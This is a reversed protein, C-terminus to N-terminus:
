HFGLLKQAASNEKLFIRVKTMDVLVATLRRPILRLLCVRTKSSTIDAMAPLGVSVFVEVCRLSYAINPGKITRTCKM